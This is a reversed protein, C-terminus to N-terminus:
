VKYFYKKSFNPFINHFSLLSVAPLAIRHVLVLLLPDYPNMNITKYYYVIIIM